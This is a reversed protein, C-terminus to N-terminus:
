CQVINEKLKFQVTGAAQRLAKACAESSTAEAIITGKSDGSGARTSILQGPQVKCTIDVIDPIGRAKQLGDLASVRGEGPHLLWVGAFKQAQEPFRPLQGAAIQLMASWPDFGYARRILDMIYGGPPRAAIEGFVPGQPTLFLEMHSIGSTIGLADHVKEAMETIQKSETNTLVAPVINAWRPKLYQTPNRFLTVGGARFSELSMETGEIFGEALLGPRLRAGVEAASNCIWIGRGGSSIPMKLVLPLGLDTILQKASTSTSTERWPACTIGATAIARKMALKDHCRRATESSIGPLGLRERVAAAAVVSGTAVAAVALPASDLPIESVKELAWDASGGFAGSAQEDRAPVDVVVPEWGSRRAAAIAGKRRGIMLLCGRTDAITTRSTTSIKMMTGSMM